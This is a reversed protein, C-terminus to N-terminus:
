SGSRDFTAQSGELVIVQVFRGDALRITQEIVGDVVTGDPLEDTAELLQECVFRLDDKGLMM